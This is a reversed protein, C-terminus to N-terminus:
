TALAVHVLNIETRDVEETFTSKEQLVPQKAPTKLRRILNM